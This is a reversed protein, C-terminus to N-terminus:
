ETTTAVAQGALYIELDKREFTQKHGILIKVTCKRHPIWLLRTNM